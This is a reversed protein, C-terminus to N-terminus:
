ISSKLNLTAAWLLEAEHSAILLLRASLLWCKTTNYITASKYHSRQGVYSSLTAPTVEIGASGHRNNKEKKQLTMGFLKLIYSISFRCAVPFFVYSGLKERFRQM